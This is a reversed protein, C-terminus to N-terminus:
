IMRSSFVLLPPLPLQGLISVVVITQRHVVRQRVCKYRSVDLVLVSDSAEHYAGIPSHHGGGAEDVGRRDFNVSVFMQPQALASLVLDRFEALPMGRHAYNGVYTSTM